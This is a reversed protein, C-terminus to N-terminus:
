FPVLPDPAAADLPIQTLCFFSMYRQAPACAATGTGSFALRLLGPLRRAVEEARAGHHHVSAWTSTPPTWSAAAIETTVPSATEESEAGKMESRTELAEDATKSEGSEDAMVCKRDV